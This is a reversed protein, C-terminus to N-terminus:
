AAEVPKESEQDSSPQEPCKQSEVHPRIIMSHIRGAPLWAMVQTKEDQFIKGNHVCDAFEEVQYDALEFLERRGNDYTVVADKM